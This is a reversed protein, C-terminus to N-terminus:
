SQLEFTHEESRLVNAVVSDNIKLQTATPKISITGRSNVSSSGLAWNSVKRTAGGGGGGGGGGAAACGTFTTLCISVSMSLVPWSRVGVLIGCFTSIILSSSAGGGIIAVPPTTPPTGPPIGPPCNPPTMPPMTLAALEAATGLNWGTIGCRM